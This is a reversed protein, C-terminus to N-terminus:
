KPDQSFTSDDLSLIHRRLYLILRLLHWKGQPGNERYYQPGQRQAHTCTTDTPPHSQSRFSVLVNGLLM